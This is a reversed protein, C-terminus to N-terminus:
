DPRKAAGGLSVTRSCDLILLLRDNLRHVGRVFMALEASVNAPLPECCSDLEFVDGIEDVRLGVAGHATSVVVSPPNSAEDRTPLGLLRRMDIAPVIQGRLNILGEVATPGLPVPTVQLEQLVEQVELAQMGFHHGAVTFTIYQVSLRSPSAATM